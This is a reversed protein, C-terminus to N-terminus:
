FRTVPHGVGEYPEPTDVDDLQPVDIDDESVIVSDVARAPFGDRETFGRLVEEATDTDIRDVIMLCRNGPTPLVRIRM